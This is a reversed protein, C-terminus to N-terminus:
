SQTTLTRYVILTLMIICTTEKHLPQLALTSFTLTPTTLHIMQVVQHVMPVMPAEMQAMTTLVKMVMPHQVMMVMLRTVMPEEMQLVMVM